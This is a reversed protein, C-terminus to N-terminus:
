MFLTRYCAFYFSSAQTITKSHGRLPGTSFATGLADTNLPLDPHSMIIGCSCLSHNISHDQSYRWKLFDFSPVHRYDWRKPPLPTFRVLATCGHLHCELHKLAAVKGRHHTTCGSTTLRPDRRDCSNWMSVMTLPTLGALSECILPYKLLVKIWSLFRFKVDNEHAM